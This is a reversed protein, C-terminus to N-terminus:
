RKIAVWVRCRFECLREEGPDLQRMRRIPLRAGKADMELVHTRGVSNMQRGRVARSSPPSDSRTSPTVTKWCFLRALDASLRRSWTTCTCRSHLHCANSTSWSGRQRHTPAIAAASLERVVAGHGVDSGPVEFWYSNRMANRLLEIVVGPRKADRSHPNRREVSGLSLRRTWRGLAEYPESAAELLAPGPDLPHLAMCGYRM